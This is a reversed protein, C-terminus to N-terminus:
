FTNCLDDTCCSISIYANMKLMECDQLAMCKQFEGYPERLFKAAACSNKGPKCTEVTLECPGGANKSVCRHCNLAEGATLLLTITLALVLLKM